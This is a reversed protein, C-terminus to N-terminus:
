LLLYKTLKMKTKKKQEPCWITENKRLKDAIKDLVGEVFDNYDSHADHFQCGWKEMAAFAFEKAEFSSNKEFVSGGTVWLRVGYNGPSWVGNTKTNVNYGINGPAPGDKHLYKM